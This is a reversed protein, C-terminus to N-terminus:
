WAILTITTGTSLTLSDVQLSTIALGDVTELVTSGTSSFAPFSADGSWIEIVEKGYVGWAQDAETLREGASRQALVKKLNNLKYGIVDAADTMYFQIKNAPRGLADVLDIQDGAEVATIQVVRQNSPINRSSKVYTAM